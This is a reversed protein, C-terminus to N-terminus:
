RSGAKTRVRVMYVWVAFMIVPAAVTFALVPLVGYVEVGKLAGNGVGMLTAIGVAMWGLGVVVFMVGGQWFNRRKKQAVLPHDSYDQGPLDQALALLTDYDEASVIVNWLRGVCHEKRAAIGYAALDAILQSLYRQEVTVMHRNYADNRSM